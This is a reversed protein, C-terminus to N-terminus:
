DTNAARRTSSTPTTLPYLAGADIVTITVTSPQPVGQFNLALAAAFIVPLM